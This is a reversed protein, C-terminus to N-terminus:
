LDQLFMKKVGCMVMMCIYVGDEMYNVCVMEYFVEMFEECMCGFDMYIVKVGVEFCDFYEDFFVFKGYYLCIGEWVGDGVLYGSDFVLIKVEDCLVLVGNMYIQVYVNCDDFLLDYMFFSM